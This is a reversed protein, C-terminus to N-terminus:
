VGSRCLSTGLCMLVKGERGKLACVGTARAAACVADREFRSLRGERGERVKLPTGRTGRLGKLVSVHVADWELASGMSGRSIAPGVPALRQRPTDNYPGTSPSWRRYRAADESRLSAAARARLLPLVTACRDESLNHWPRHRHVAGLAARRSDPSVVDDLAQLEQL